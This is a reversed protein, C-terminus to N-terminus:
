CISGLFTTIASFLVTLEFTVPIFAPWSGLPKGSILYPYDIGNMWYQMLLATGLGTFGGCLVIFPLITPRIGLAHDIGHVPYPTFADTKTYGAERVKTAASLLGHEDKYEAIWGRAQPPRSRDKKESHESM